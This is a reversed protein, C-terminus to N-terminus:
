LHSLAEERAERAEPFDPNVELAEDFSKVAEEYRGLGMLVVGKLYCPKSVDDKLSTDGRRPIWTFRPMDFHAPHCHKKAEDFSEIAEESKDLRSLASGRLCWADGGEPDIKVARDFAEFAEEYRELSFLAMGKNSWYLANDPYLELLLDISDLADEYKGLMFYVNGRSAKAEVAKNRAEAAENDLQKGSFYESLQEWTDAAEEYSKLADDFKQMEILLNGKSYAATAKKDCDRIKGGISSGGLLKGLFGM